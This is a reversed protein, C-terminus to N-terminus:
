QGVTMERYALLRYAFGAAEEALRMESLIMNIDLRVAERGIEASEPYQVAREIGAQMSLPRPQTMRRVRLHLVLRSQTGPPKRCARLYVTQQSTIVQSLYPRYGILAIQLHGQHTPHLVGGHHGRARMRM